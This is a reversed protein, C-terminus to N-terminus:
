CPLTNIQHGLINKKRFAAIRTQDNKRSSLTRNVLTCIWVQPMLANPLENDLRHADVDHNKIKYWGFAIRGLVPFKMILLTELKLMGLSSWLLAFLFFIMQCSWSAFLNRWIFRVCLWTGRWSEAGLIEHRSHSRM